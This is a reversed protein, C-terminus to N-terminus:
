AVGTKQAWMDLIEDITDLFADLAAVKQAFGPGLLGLHTAAVQWAQRAPSDPLLLATTETWTLLFPWLITLPQPGSLMAEFAQYYYGLRVLHLGAPRTEAPISLYASHWDPLWARLADADITPGGLLGMLGAYLGPQKVAEARRPFELLFRREALAPGSMVAVANAAHVVARLYDSLLDIGDTRAANHISLWIQRAHEVQSRARAMVNDPQNFQGRVSAQTFDMFHQPDYLIKCGDVIPGLWPHSRLHRPQTYLSRPHHSIDLHIEETVPVIEREQEFSNNHVFFLDIDAAGGLIPDGSLLSGHLYIALLDRETRIRQAVTDRTIKQLIDLNIRM